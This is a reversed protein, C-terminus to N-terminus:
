YKIIRQLAFVYGIYEKIHDFYLHELAGQIAVTQRIANELGYRAKYAANTLFRNEELRRKSLSQLWLIMIHPNFSPNPTHIAACPLFFSPIPKTIKRRKSM